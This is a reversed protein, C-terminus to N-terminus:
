PAQVAARRSKAPTAPATSPRFVAELRQPLNRWGNVQQRMTIFVRSGPPPNGFKKLYPETIDIEDGVPPPLPGLFIFKDCYRRGANHPPSAFLVIHGAPPTAVRLKLALRNRDETISFGVVPNPGFEPREPPYAFPPLGLLAQNRNIATFLNQGTLPGSQGGRPHSRVKKGFDRWADRQEETLDNWGLSAGGFHAQAQLQANTRPRRPLTHERECQGFRGRFAVIKGRKGSKRIDHTKMAGYQALRCATLRRPAASCQAAAPGRAM